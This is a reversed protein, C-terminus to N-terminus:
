DKLCRVSFGNEKVYYSRGVQPLSYNLAYVWPLYGFSLTSTWFYASQGFDEFIGDWTDGGPIGSFGYKDTAGANPSWWDTTCTTKLNGGEDTGLVGINMDYPFANPNTGANRVLTNWEYHSPIHWGNPCIGKAPVPCVDNPPPGSGNCPLAGQMLVEWEYLGGMPCSPDDQGNIDMCFKTGLAQPSTIPVYTGVNLNEAMWWQNGIKVVAYHNGNADTCPMFTFSVTQSSTPTLMVVTKYIGSKGTLKLIDGVNYQMQVVSSISKLANESDQITNSIENSNSQIQHTINPYSSTESLSLLRETYTFNDSLIQIVYIGKPLGTINYRHQGKYLISQQMLVRKGTLDSVILSVTGNEPIYFDIASSSELPNPFIKVFAEESFDKQSIGITAVLSLTNNGAMELSTCQTLNEIKVSDVVNSSGSGSFTINYNQASLSLSTIIALLLTFTILKMM